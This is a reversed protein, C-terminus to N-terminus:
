GPQEDKGRLRRVAPIWAVAGTAQLAIFLLILLGPGAITAAPVAWIATGDLLGIAGFEVGLGARDFSVRPGGGAGDAEDSGGVVAAAGDIAGPSAPLSSEGEVQGEGESPPASEQSAASEPSAQSTPGGVAPTPAPSGADAPTPTPTPTRTPTPTPTPFIAIPPLTVVPTPTPTATAAPTPIPTPTVVPASVVVVPPVAAGAGSGSCDPQRYARANWALSGTTVATARITFSVWDLSTLRDGGSTAYITVRNGARSATWSGGASSGTVSAAAVSFNSPVDVWLCGIESSSLTNALPDANTAILSFYTEVGSTVALPSTTLTWLASEARAPSPTLGLVLAAVLLFRALWTWPAGRM